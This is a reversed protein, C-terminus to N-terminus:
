ESRDEQRGARMKVGSTQVQLGQEAREMGIRKEGSDLEISSGRHEGEIRM